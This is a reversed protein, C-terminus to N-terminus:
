NSTKFYKPDLAALALLPNPVAVGALRLKRTAQRCATMDNGEALKEAEAVTMISLKDVTAPAAPIPASLGSSQPANQASGAAAPANTPKPAEVASGSQGAVQQASGGEAASKPVM